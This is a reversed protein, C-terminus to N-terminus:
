LEFEKVVVGEERISLVPKHDFLGFLTSGSGSMAAYNAGQEYLIEKLKALLPYNPFISAEFDNKIQDKWNAGPLTFAERLEVSPESPKVNAYAEATSISLNPFVLALYKGKLDLSIPALDTGTGTALAPKNDIFFPCDSGLESAFEKLQDTNIRLEFLDNLMKLTFAADASGGGLGAGMPIVKHLHMNVEPIYYRSRILNYAKICLNDGNNHDVTLGSNTFSFLDSPIIELADMLPVPFLCSEIDHYGDPRKRLINLGLNVKANPFSIM